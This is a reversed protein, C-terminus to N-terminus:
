LDALRQETRRVSAGIVERAKIWTRHVPHDVPYRALVEDIRQEYMCRAGDPGTTLDATILADMVPSEELEFEALEGELGREEAEFRAGSHHAVLCVVRDPFGHDRLYVAGDLAHFGTRQAEISYGVDHLWAAAVLVDGSEGVVSRLERARDAVARVHSWRRGLPGLLQGAVARSTHVLEM